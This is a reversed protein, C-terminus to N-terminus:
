VRLSGPVVENWDPAVPRFHDHHDSAEGLTEVEDLVLPQASWRHRSDSIVFAKGVVHQM